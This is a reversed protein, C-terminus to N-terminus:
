HPPSKNNESTKDKLFPRNHSARAIEGALSLRMFSYAITYKREPEPSLIFSKGLHRHTKDGM